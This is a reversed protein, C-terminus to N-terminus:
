RRFLPKHTTFYVKKAGKGHSAGVYTPCSPIKNSCSTLFGWFLLTMLLLTFKKM